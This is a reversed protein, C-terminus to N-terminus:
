KRRRCSRPCLRGRPDRHPFNVSISAARSFHEALFPTSVPTHKVAGKSKQFIRLKQV